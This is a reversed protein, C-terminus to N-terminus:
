LYQQIGAPEAPAQQLNSLAGNAALIAPDIPLSFDMLSGTQFLNRESRSLCTKAAAIRSADPSRTVPRRDEDDVHVVREAAVARGIRSDIV